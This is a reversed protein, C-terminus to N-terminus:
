KHQDPAGGSVKDGQGSGLATALTIKVDLLLSQRAVYQADMRALRLPESMDIHQIQSLGSIGPKVAFVGAKYREEVVATQSPLCPRPGILSQENRLINWVQPLEDLKTKRLINGLRTISAPSLEHTGVQKTGKQMTRFKYCTFVEGDQGVREQSFVGPGSSDLRIMLWIVAMLWSAFILVFVAFSVDILRKGWAYAPNDQAPDSLYHPGELGQGVIAEVRDAVRAVDVAPQLATLVTLALKQLPKPLGNLRALKGKFRQGYVAALHLVSVTIGTEQALAAEAEAKTQAYHSKPAGPGLTHFSSAFLFHGVGAARAARLVELTQEVNVARFAALDGETDNNKAALHLVAAAGELHRPLDDYSGWPLDPYATDAGTAHGSILVLDMGKAQLLPILEQAVFGSAGTVVIKM